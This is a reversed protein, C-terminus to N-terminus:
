FQGGGGGVMSEFRPNVVDSYISGFSYGLGIELRTEFDTAFEREGVLIEEDSAEEASLYIQDRIRSASGEIDFSLGRFLQLEVRGFVSLRNQQLEQLYHSGEVSFNLEGWPQQADLSINLAQTSRGESLMGFITTDQYAFHEASLAYLVTLQRRSSEEYPFVSYELAPGVRLARDQNLRSSHRLSARGGTSWHDSISRVVTSEVGFNRRESVFDEEDGVDFRERTYDGGLALDIKWEPTTRNVSLGGDFEYSTERSESDYSGGVDIDFVWRDWPDDVQVPSVPEDDPGEEYIVQLGRGAPTGAVYNVLGLAIIRVLGEREEAETQTPDSAYTLRRELGEFRDRGIFDLNFRDGGGGTEEDTVLLHVDASQRERVWTVFPLQRRIYDFDCLFGPCDLFIRVPGEAQAANGAPEDQGPPTGDQAASGVPAVLVLVLPLVLIPPLAGRTRPM